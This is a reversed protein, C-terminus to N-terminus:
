GAAEPERQAPRAPEDRQLLAAPVDVDPVVSRLEDLTVGGLRVV